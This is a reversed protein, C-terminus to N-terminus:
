NLLPQTPLYPTFKKTLKERTTYFSGANSRGGNAFVSTGFSYPMPEHLLGM